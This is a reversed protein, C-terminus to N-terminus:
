SYDNRQAHTSLWKPRTQNQAARHITAWWAGRDIPNELCSYQLPNSHGDGLSRGSGPISGVDGGGGANAPLNNVVLVVQSAWDNRQDRQLETHYKITNQLRGGGGSEQDPEAPWSVQTSGSTGWLRKGLADRKEMRRMSKEFICIEDSWESAELAKWHKFSGGLYNAQPSSGKCITGKGAKEKAGAVWPGGWTRQKRGGHSQM